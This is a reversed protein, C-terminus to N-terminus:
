PAAGLMANVYLYAFVFCLMAATAGARRKLAQRRTEDAKGDREARRVSLTWVLRRAPFFLAAALV